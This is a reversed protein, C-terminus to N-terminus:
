QWLVGVEDHMLDWLFQASIADLNEVPSQALNKIRQNNLNVTDQAIKIKDLTLQLITPFPTGVQGIGTVDGTLEINKPINDIAIQMTQLNVGDTLDVPNALKILRYNYFSVNGDASINNLRLNDIRSNVRDIEGQLVILATTHGAVVVGLATVTIITGALSGGITTVEFQVGGIELQLGSIATSLGGVTNELASLDDSAEAQDSFTGRWIQGKFLMLPNSSLGLPSLNTLDIQTIEQPRNNVDGSWLKLHTLNPLNSLQITPSAVPRDNADGIWIDGNPLNPLAEIPIMAKTSVIGATNYIFGNEM